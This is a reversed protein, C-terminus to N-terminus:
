IPINLRSLEMKLQDPDLPKTLFGVGLGAARSRDDSNISSTLIIILHDLGKNKIYDIFVWGKITPMNLDLLIVCKDQRATLFNLCEEPDTFSFLNLNGFYERIIEETLFISLHDDDLIVVSSTTFDEDM